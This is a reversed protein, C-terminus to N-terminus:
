VPWAQLTCPYDSTRPLGLSSIQHAHEGKLAADNGKGVAPSSAQRASATQKSSIHRGVQLRSQKHTSKNSGTGPTPRKLPPMSALSPRAPYSPDVATDTHPPLSITLELKGGSWMGGEAM